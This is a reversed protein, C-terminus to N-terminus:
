DSNMKALLRLFEVYLWVLTVLLGLGALWEMYKPSRNTEIKEFFDFDLLLNLAAVGIIVVSIGIGMAGSEHLYPIEFGVFSGIISLIYVFMIAGTAMMVGSRFKDTVKILGSRYLVLMSLLTGFTLTVAQLVIGELSSAYIASITGVFLGELLAYIPAIIPALHPKVMAFIVAGLGGLMGVWMFMMSPSLYSFITTVMLLGFLMLTKDIAGKVTSVDGESRTIFPDGGGGERRDITTTKAKSITKDNLVPNGGGFMGRRAM